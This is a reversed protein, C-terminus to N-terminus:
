EKLEERNIKNIIETTSINFIGENNRELEIWIVGRAKCVKKYIEKHPNDSNTIYFDPKHRKLLKKINRPPMKNLEPIVLDTCELNEVMYMRQRQDLVPVRKYGTIEDHAIAVILFDCIEKCRNLFYIHGPHLLNFAGSTFGIKM